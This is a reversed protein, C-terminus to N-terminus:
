SRPTEPHRLQTPNPPKNRSAISRPKYNFPRSGFAQLDNWTPNQSRILREKKWRCWGKIKKEMAIADCISDMEKFYVLKKCHYKKTFGKNSGIKHEFVRSEVDNTVGTYITGTESAMIYIYSTGPNQM